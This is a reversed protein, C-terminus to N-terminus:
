NNSPDTVIIKFNKVLMRNIGDSNTQTFNHRILVVEGDTLIVPQEHFIRTMERGILFLIRNEKRRTWVAINFVGNQGPDTKDGYDNWAVQGIHIFEFVEDDPMSDYIRLRGDAGNGILTAVAPDNTLSKYISTQVELALDGNM